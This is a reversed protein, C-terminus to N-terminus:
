QQLFQQTIHHFLAPQELHAAHGAFPLITLHAHPLAAQLELASQPPHSREGEGLIILTPTRVAALSRTFDASEMAQIAATGAAVSMGRAADLCFELATPHAKANVFWTKIIREASAQAGEEELKRLTEEITEFRRSKDLKLGAGYLVASLLSDAHQQLLHQVVFGSMSHGLVHFRTIRLKSALALVGEAFQELNNYPTQHESAGFGPWDVSIVDFHKELHKSLAEWVLSSSAFGHLLFLPEGRGSRRYLM